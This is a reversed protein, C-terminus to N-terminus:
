EIEQELEKGFLIRARLVNFSMRGRRKTFPKQELQEPSSGLIDSHQSTNWIVQILGNLSKTYGATYRHTFYNFIADGYQEITLTFPVFADFVEPTIQNLWHFYLQFAEEETTAEYIGYFAEKLRYATELRPFNKLWSELVLTEHEDLDRPRKLLLFRDHMLTRRQRDTLSARIEKRIAELCKHLLKLVHWKDAVLHAHPLVQHVADHYGAWMDTAIVTIQERRSQPLHQLYSIVTAKTRDRLLDVIQHHEVDTIVCRYQNLLYLEDIGLCHVETEPFRPQIDVAFENFLIRILKEDVGVEDAISTFTRRLAAQQIYRTLRQTMFHHEDM